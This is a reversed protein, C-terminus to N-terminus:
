RFRKPIKALVNKTLINDGYSYKGQDDVRYSVYRVNVYMKNKNMPDMCISPTSSLFVNRDIDSHRGINQLVQMNYASMPSEMDKLAKTYFKYNSLVNRCIGEDPGPHALVKMCSTTVDLGKMNRYYALITFEYDLKYEYVDKELFLHDINSDHNREYDAMEYFAHALVNKGENRYYHIM